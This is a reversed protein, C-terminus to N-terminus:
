QYGTMHIVAAYSPPDTRVTHVYFEKNANLRVTRNPGQVKSNDPSDCLLNATLQWIVQPAGPPVSDGDWVYVRAENCIGYVQVLTTGDPVNVTVKKWQNVENVWHTGTALVPTTHVVSGAHANALILQPPHAWTIQTGSCGIIRRDVPDVRVSFDATVPKPPGGHSTAPNVKEIMLVIQAQLFDAAIASTESIIIQQIRLNGLVSLAQYEALGQATGPKYIVAPIPNLDGAANVTNGKLADTCLPPSSLYTIVKQRLALADISDSNSKLAGQSSLLVQSGFLSALGVLGLVVTMELLSFGSQKCRCASGM